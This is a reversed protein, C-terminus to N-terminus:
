RPVARSSSRTIVLSRMPTTLTVDRNMIHACCECRKIPACIKVKGANRLALHRERHRNAMQRVDERCSSCWQCELSGKLFSKLEKVADCRLCMKEEPASDDLKAM